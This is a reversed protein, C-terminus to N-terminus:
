LRLPVQWEILYKKSTGFLWWSQSGESGLNRIYEDGTVPSGSILVQIGCHEWHALTHLHGMVLMKFPGRNTHQWMLMRRNTAHVPIGGGCPIAHGHHLLIWHGNIRVRKFFPSGKDQLSVPISGLLNKQLYRYAIQDWNAREDAYRGLRGHNGAVCDVTVKKWVQEAQGRLFTTLLESAQNAQEEPNQIAQENSQTPFIGSGDNIDGLILVHLNDYKFLEQASALQKAATDLARKASAPSYSDTEKGYHLDSLLLVATRDDTM